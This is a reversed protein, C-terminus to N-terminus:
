EVDFNGGERECRARLKQEIRSITRTLEEVLKSTEVGMGELAEAISLYFVSEGSQTINSSIRLSTTISWIRNILLKLREQEPKLFTLKSQIVQILEYLENSIESVVRKVIAMNSETELRNLSQIFKERRGDILVCQLLRNSMFTTKEHIGVITENLYLAINGIQKAIEIFVRAQEGSHGAAIAANMSIEKLIDAQKQIQTALDQIRYAERFLGIICENSVGFNKTKM